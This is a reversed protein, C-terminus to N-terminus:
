YSPMYLDVAHELGTVANEHHHVSRDQDRGQEYLRMAHCQALDALDTGAYRPGRHDSSHASREVM